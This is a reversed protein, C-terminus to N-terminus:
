GARAYLTDMITAAVTDAEEKSDCFAYALPTDTHYKPGGWNYMVAVAYPQAATPGLEHFVLRSSNLMDVTIPDVIELRM